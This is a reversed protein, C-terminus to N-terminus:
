YDTGKCFNYWKVEYFLAEWLKFSLEKKSLQDNM